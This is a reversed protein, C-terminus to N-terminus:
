LPAFFVRRRRRCDRRVISRRGGPSYFEGVIIGDTIYWFSKKATKLDVLSKMLFFINEKM